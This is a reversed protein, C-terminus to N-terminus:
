AALGERTDINAQEVSCTLAVAWPNNVWRRASRRAGQMRDWRRAFVQRGSWAAQAFNGGLDQLAPPRIGAAVADDDTADQVRLVRVHEVLLTMRSAWRPMESRHRWGIEAPFLERGRLDNVPYFESPNLDEGDARYFLGAKTGGRPDGTLYDRPDGYITRDWAFAGYEGGTEYDLTERVVQWAERVWLRQGPVFGVEFTPLGQRDDRTWWCWTASMGRPNEPTKRESCYADLYPAPHKPQHRPHIDDLAPPEPVESQLPRWIQTQQGARVALVEHPSLDIPRDTM